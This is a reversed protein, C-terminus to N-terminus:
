KSPKASSWLISQRVATTLRSYGYTQGNHFRKIVSVPGSGVRELRHHLCPKQPNLAHVRWAIVERFTFKIDISDVINM